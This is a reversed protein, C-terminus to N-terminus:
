GSKEADHGREHKCENETDAHRVELAIGHELNETIKLVDNGAHQAAHDNRENRHMDRTQEAVDRRFATQRCRDLHEGREVADDDHKLQKVNKGLKHKRAAYASLVVQLADLINRRRVKSGETGLGRRRRYRYRQVTRVAIVDIAVNCVENNREAGVMLRLPSVDAEYQPEIPIMIALPMFGVRATNAGNM